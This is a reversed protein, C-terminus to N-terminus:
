DADQLNMNERNVFAQELRSSNGGIMLWAPVDTQLYKLAFYTVGYNKSLASSSLENPFTQASQPLDGITNKMFERIDGQDSEDIPSM